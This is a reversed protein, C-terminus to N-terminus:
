RGGSPPTDIWEVAALVRATVESLDAGANGIVAISGPGAPVLSGEFGEERVRVPRRVPENALVLVTVPGQATRVVLHPVVHGRFPCSQAYSVQDAGLRLRIGGAALARALAVPDAVTSTLSQPEHRIHTVVERALAARPGGVWFLTGVLVGAVVSAALALWRQRPAVPPRLRVAPPAAREPVPVQLARRITEDMALLSAHYEACAACGDRHALARADLRAPDAGAMRRFELCNM